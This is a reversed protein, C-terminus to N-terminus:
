LKFWKPKATKKIIPKPEPLVPTHLRAPEPEQEPKPLDDQEPTLLNNLSLIEERLYPRLSANAGDVFNNIM